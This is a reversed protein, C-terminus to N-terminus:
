VLFSRILDILEVEDFPKTIIRSKETRVFGSLESQDDLMDGTMLIFPLGSPYKQLQMKYLDLGSQGGLHLDCLIVSVNCVQLTQEASELNSAIIVEAENGLAEELIIQLMELIDLSDDVLLIKKDM